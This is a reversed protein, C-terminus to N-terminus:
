RLALTLITATTLLVGAAALLVWGWRQATHRRTAIRSKVVAREAHWLVPATEALDQVLQEPTRVAYYPVGGTGGRRPWSAAALVVLVATLCVAAAGIAVLAPVPYSADATTLGAAGVLITLVVGSTTALTSNGSDTRALDVAADAAAAKVLAEPRPEFAPAVPPQAPGIPVSTETPRTHAAIAARIGSLDYGRAERGGSAFARKLPNVGVARLQERLDTDGMNLAAALDQIHMRTTDSATFAERARLLIGPVQQNATTHNETHPNM